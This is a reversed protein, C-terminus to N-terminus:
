VAGGGGWEVGMRQLSQNQRTRELLKLCNQSAQSNFTSPKPDPNCNPPSQAGRNRETEFTLQRAQIISPFLRRIWLPDTTTPKPIYPM